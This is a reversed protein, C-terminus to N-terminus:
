QFVNIIGMRQSQDQQFGKPSVYSMWLPKNGDNFEATVLSVYKNGRFIGQILEYFREITVDKKYLEMREPFLHSWIEDDLDGLHRSVEIKGLRRTEDQTLPRYQSFVMFLPSELAHLVVEVRRADENSTYTQRMLEIFQDITIVVNHREDIVAYRGLFDFKGELRM